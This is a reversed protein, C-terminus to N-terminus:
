KTEMKEADLIADSVIQRKSKKVGRNRLWLFIRELAADAEANIGVTFQKKTNEM